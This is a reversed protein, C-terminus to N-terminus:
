VCRTVLGNCYMLRWTSCSPMARPVLWCNAQWILRFRQVAAKCCVHGCAVSASTSRRSLKVYPRKPINCAGSLIEASLAEWTPESSESEM